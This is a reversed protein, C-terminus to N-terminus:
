IRLVGRRARSMRGLSTPFCPHRAPWCLVTGCPGYPGRSGWGAPFSYRRALGASPCLPRLCGALCCLGRSRRSRSGGARPRLARLGRRARGTGGRGPGMGLRASRRPGHGGRGRARLSFLRRRWGAGKGRCQSSVHWIAFFILAATLLLALMYCFAAFTFAMAPSSCPAAGAGASFLPAPGEPYFWESGAAVARM